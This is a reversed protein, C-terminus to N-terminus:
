GAGDRVTFVAIVIPLSNSVSQLVHVSYMQLNAWSFTLVTPPLSYTSSLTPPPLRWHREKQAKLTKVWTFLTSIHFSFFFLFFVTDQLFRNWERKVIGSQETKAPRGGTRQGRKLSQTSQEYDEHHESSAKYSIFHFDAGSCQWITESCLKIRHKQCLLQPKM